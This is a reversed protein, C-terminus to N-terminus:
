GKDFASQLMNQINTYNLTLRDVLFATSQKGHDSDYLELLERFHKRLPRSMQDTPPLNKLMYDRIPVLAKLRKHDDTYALATRLLATKCSLIDKITFRSQKLEADTLGDPLMSLLSLLDQAGNVLTIRPSTLSFLISLELNSRRDYGDSIVSTKEEEWRSLINSCGEVDVLHALLTIALPMNASLDLIQDVEEMSHQDDAIDIFMNRAANQTLPQLPLIFPRTWQVKEPREAGRMTIMFALSTVDTLLSLFNEVEKRSEVPEWVTELNNLILLTPPLSSFHQLVARSLDKGPKLGLHAGTLGALEVKTSVTDCTVFFRNQQYKTTVETHHLVARALSTKGMGGAGLIAVRPTGQSLLKLIDALESERGHFIHPESPL